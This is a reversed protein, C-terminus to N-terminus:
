RWGAAPTEERNKPHAGTKRGKEGRRGESDQWAPDPHKIGAELTMKEGFRAKCLAYRAAELRGKIKWNRGLELGSKAIYGYRVKAMMDRLRWRKWRGGRAGTDEHTNPEEPKGLPRTRNQKNERKKTEKKRKKEKRMTM